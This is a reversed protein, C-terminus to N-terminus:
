ERYSKSRARESGPVKAGQLSIARFSENGPVKVEQFKKCEVTNTGLFTGKRFSENGTLEHCQSRCESQSYETNHM